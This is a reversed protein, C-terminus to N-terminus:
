LLLPRREHSDVGSVSRPSPASGRSYMSATRAHASRSALIGGATEAALEDDEALEADTRDSSTTIRLSGHCAKYVFVTFGIIYLAMFLWQAHFFTTGFIPYNVAVSNVLTSLTTATCLGRPADAHCFMIEEPHDHCTRINDETHNCFMQSGFTMYQPAIQVALTYDLGLVALMSLIAFFLLAQPATLAPSITYFRVLGLLGIGRYVVATMTCVVLFAILALLTGIDAPFVAALQHFVYAVPNLMIAQDFYYGCSSGCVSNKIRDVSTLAVSLVVVWSVVVLVCGMLVRLPRWVASACRGLRTGKPRSAHLQQQLARAQNELEELLMKDRTSIPVRLNEYRVSITHQMQRNIELDRELRHTNLPVVSRQHPQTIHLPLLSLGISTYLLYVAMGLALLLGLAFLVARQITANALLHQYWDSNDPMNQQVQLVFGTSFLVLAMTVIFLTYKLANKIRDSLCTELDNEEYFFYAFPILLFCLVTYRAILVSSHIADVVQPTAWAHKLGTTNDNVASVFFVDLAALTALCLCTWFGLVATGTALRDSEDPHRFCRVLTY